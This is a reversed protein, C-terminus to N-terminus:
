LQTALFINYKARAIYLNEKGIVVDNFTYEVNSNKFFDAKSILFNNNYFRGSIIAKSFKYQINNNIFIIGDTATLNINIFNDNFELYNRLFKTM